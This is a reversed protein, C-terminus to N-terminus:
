EEFTLTNDLNKKHYNIFESFMPLYKKSMKLLVKLWHEWQSKDIRGNESVLPFDARMYLCSEKEPTDFLFFRGYFIEFNRQNCYELLKSKLEKKMNKQKGFFLRWIATRNNGGEDEGFTLQLHFSEINSHYELVTNGKENEFREFKVRLIEETQQQLQYILEKLPQM